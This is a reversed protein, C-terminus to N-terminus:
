NLGADSPSSSRWYHSCDWHRVPCVSTKLRAFPPDSMKCWSFLVFFHTHKEKKKGWAPEEYWGGCNPGSPPPTGATCGAGATRWHRSKCGPRQVRRWLVPWPWFSLLTSVCARVYARVCARTCVCVCVCPYVTSVFSIHHFNFSGSVPDSCCCISFIIAAAVQHSLSFFFFILFIPRTFIYHKNLLIQLSLWVSLILRAQILIICTHM